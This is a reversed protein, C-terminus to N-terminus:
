CEVTEHTEGVPCEGAIVLVTLSDPVRILSRLTEVDGAPIIVPRAWGIYKEVDFCAEEGVMGMKKNAFVICLLPLRKEAVDILANVGSHLLAFDGSLAVQTSRAAVAVSSGLGYTALGVRYPPNMAYVACGMDCIAPIGKEKLIEVAAKFPCSPCFTRYYGRNGFREPTASVKPPEVLRHERVFPRGYENTETLAEPSGAPPYVTVVHSQGPAAGVGVPEGVFRNLPSTKSWEFMQPLLRDAEAVRGPMTLDRDALSGPADRRDLLGESVEADLLAPTLRLIAIRSFRESARFAEEVAQQCTDADPELVPVQALEGYYRSDEANQSGRVDVDDGAVVVVGGRLGQTTANVLPDACANLGVNKVVVASRKGSLSDGLAFELAVKENVVTEAGILKALCTVPYGPVTYYTDAARLLSMAVAQSGRM